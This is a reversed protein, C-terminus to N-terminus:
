KGYAITTAQIRLRGDPGSILELSTFGFPSGAGGLSAIWRSCGDWTGTGSLKWSARRFPSAETTRPASKSLELGQASAMDLLRQADSAFSTALPASAAAAASFPLRATIRFRGNAGLSSSTDLMSQAALGQMLQQLVSPTGTEGDVLLIGPSLLQVRTYGIGNGPTVQRLKNLIQEFAFRQYAVRATPSLDEFRNSAVAAGSSKARAEGLVLDLVGGALPPATVAPAAGSPISLPLESVKAAADKTGREKAEKAALASAKARAISDERYQKVLKISDDRRQKAVKASDDRRTKAAAISDKRAAEAVKLSEARAAAALAPDVPPAKVSDTKVAPAAVPEPVPASVAPAPMSDISAPPIPAATSKWFWWGGAGLGGVLCAALAFWLPKRSSHTAFSEQSDFDLIDSSPQSGTKRAGGFQNRMLNLRIM